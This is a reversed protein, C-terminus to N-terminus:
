DSWCDLLDTVLAELSTTASKGSSLVDQHDLCASSKGAALNSIYSVAAIELGYRRAVIAEPITSMSVASAGVTQLLKIEAPTEYNPGLMWALVGAHLNIGRDQLRFNLQSYFDHRYLNSLDTFEREPRGRLPSEGTQNIHDTVLM